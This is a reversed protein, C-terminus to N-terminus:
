SIHKWLFGSFSKLSPHIIWRCKEGAGSSLRDLGTGFRDCRLPSAAESGAHIQEWHFQGKKCVCFWSNPAPARSEFDWGRMQLFAIRMLVEVHSPGVWRDSKPDGCRWSRSWSIIILLIKQIMNINNVNELNHEAADNIYAIQKKGTRCSCTVRVDSKVAAFMCCVVGCMRSFLRRHSLESGSFDRQRM